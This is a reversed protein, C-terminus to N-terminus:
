NLKLRYFGNVEIYNKVADLIAPHNCKSTRQELPEPNLKRKLSAKFGQVITYVEKASIKLEQSIRRPPKHGTFYAQLVKM